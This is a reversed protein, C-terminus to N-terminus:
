SLGRARRLYWEAGLLLTIALFFFPADWIEHETLKSYSSQAVKLAEPLDQAQEIHFYRGKTMEALRQLMPAQVDPHALEAQSPEVFFASEAKGLYHGQRDHALVEVQYLGEQGAAFNALYKASEGALDSSLDTSAQLTTAQQDSGTIKVTVNANHQPAFVSDMVDIHLAVEEGPSYSERDLEVAVPEPSQASLWRSLQRWFREHTM